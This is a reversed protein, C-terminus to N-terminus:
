APPRRSWSTSRRDFAAPLAALAQTRVRQAQVYDISTLAGPWRWTSAPRRRCCDADAARAYVPELAAAIEAAITLGHALRIAELGPLTSRWWAAGRAAGAGGADGRM